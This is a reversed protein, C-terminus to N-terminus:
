YQYDDHPALRYQVTANINGFDCRTIFLVNYLSTCYEDCTKVVAM